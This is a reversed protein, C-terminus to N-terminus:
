EVLKNGDKLTGSAVIKMIGEEKHSVMIMMDKDICAPRSLNLKITKKSIQTIESSISLTGIQLNVVDKVKPKWDGGFDDILKHKLEVSDYVSPLTGKLGIMNGALTDNKCYYPDIETGVGILGGPRINKLKEQDTKFSLIKTFIPQSVLKGGQKGCIGPRIEVEDGVQLSGNFLSGGIVGGNVENFDQGAKNIDFSRTAMFCAPEDSEEPVVFHEMIEELLWQTGIEKNFSTPIIKKPFIEFKDLLKTLEQYRELAVEKSVLDLKNLCVLVNEIGALKIAALHQILQPKKDIPESASVIVIVANMLKISGLMTLILEQHGPCDVFSVHNIIKCEEGDIIHKEPKSSTSYLTGDDDSWIKMNAYGPKITINRTKESSHKQTKIGTLVRVCTSKGDSVSGLMGINLVPQKSANENLESYM